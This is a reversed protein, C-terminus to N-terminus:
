FPEDDYDPDEADDVEDDDGADSIPPLQNLAVAVQLEFGVPDAAILAAIVKAEALRRRMPWLYADYIATPQALDLCSVEETYTLKTRLSPWSGQWPDSRYVMLTHLCRRCTLAAFPDKHLKRVLQGCLTRSRATIVNMLPTRFTKTSGPIMFEEWISRPEVEVGHIVAGTSCHAAVRDGSRLGRVVSLEPIRLINIARQYAEMDDLSVDSDLGYFRHWRFAFPQAELVTRLSDIIRWLPSEVRSWSGDVGPKIEALMKLEVLAKIYNPNPQVDLGHVYMSELDFPSQPQLAALWLLTLLRDRQRTLRLGYVANALVTSRWWLVSREPYQSPEWTRGAEAQRLSSHAVELVEWLPDRTMAFHHRRDIVGLSEVLGLDVLRKMQEAESSSAKFGLEGLHFEGKEWIMVATALRLFSANGFLLSSVADQLDM